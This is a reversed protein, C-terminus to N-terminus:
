DMIVGLKATFVEGSVPTYANRAVLQGYIKTAATTPKFPINLGTKVAVCNGGAGATADGVVWDTTAISVSGLVTLMEADTPTWAANDAEVGVDVSFLVLDCALKTAQAASDNLVLKEIVGSGPNQKAVNNFTFHADGTADSIADGAAYATVNAPRTLSASVEEYHYSVNGM